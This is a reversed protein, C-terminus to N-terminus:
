EPLTCADLQAIEAGTAVDWIQIHGAQNLSALLTGTPNFRVLLVRTDATLRPASYDFELTSQNRIAFVNLASGGVAILQGDNSFDVSITFELLSTPSNAYDQKVFDWTLIGALSPNPMMLYANDPTLVFERLSHYINLWQFQVEMLVHDITQQAEIDWVVAVILYLTEDAENFFHPFVGDALILTNNDSVILQNIPFDYADITHLLTQTEIDWFKILNDQGSSIVTKGEDTIALDLIEDTHAPIMAVNTQAEDWFILTGDAHGTMLSIKNRSLDPLVFATIPSATTLSTTQQFTKGDYICLQNVSGAPKYFLAGMQGWELLHKIDDQLRIDWATHPLTNKAQTSSIASSLIILLGIVFIIRM